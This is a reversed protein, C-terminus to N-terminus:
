FRHDLLKMPPPMVMPSSLLPLDFAAAVGIVNEQSGHALNLNKFLFDPRRERKSDESWKRKRNQQGTLGDIPRLCVVKSLVLEEQREKSVTERM